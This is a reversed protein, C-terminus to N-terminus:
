GAGAYRMTAKLDDLGSTLIRHSVEIANQIAADAPVDGTFARATAAKYASVWEKHSPHYGQWTRWDTSQAFWKWWRMDEPPGALAEPADFVDWRAPLNGRDVAVRGQVVPGALFVIFDTAVELTGKRVASSTVYHSQDTREVAPRGSVDGKPLPGLAWRFRDRIRPVRGGIGHVFAQYVGVKGANFPDGFEGALKTSDALPPAVKHKHILGVWFKFGNEGGNM